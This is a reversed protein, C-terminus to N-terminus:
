AGGRVAQDILSAAPSVERLEQRDHLLAVLPTTIRGMAPHRRSAPGAPDRRVPIRFVALGDARSVRARLEARRITRLVADNDPQVLCSLTALGREAAEDVLVRLLRTGLGRKQWGDEIMIGLEPGDPGSAILGLGVIDDGVQLVLSLGDAPQLLARALRPSVRSVPSHYRRLVTEASCRAHMAVVAATDEVRARRIIPQRTAASVLDTAASGTGGDAGRAVTGVLAPEEERSRVAAALRHLEAARALETDTFPMARSLLVPSGQGDDLVLTDVADDGAGPCADLLRCLQDVLLEPDEMVVAAARMHRVAQDELAQPACPVVTACEVGARRFLQEVERVSWGGPTHLVLEDVVRGDVAPFVQLGLINVLRDGCQAAIGALAGPRDELTARVQWMM